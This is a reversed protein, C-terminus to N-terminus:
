GVAKPLAWKGIVNGAQDFIMVLVWWMHGMIAAIKMVPQVAWVVLAADSLWAESLAALLAQLLARVVRSISALIWM